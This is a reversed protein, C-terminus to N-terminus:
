NYGSSIILYHFCQNVYQKMHKIQGCRIRFLSTDHRAAKATPWSCKDSTVVRGRRGGGKSDGDGGGPCGRKHPGKIYPHVPDPRFPQIHNPTITNM